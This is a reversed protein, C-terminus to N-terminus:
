WFRWWRKQDFSKPEHGRRYHKFRAPNGVYVAYPPVDRTVVSGAGVVAGEGITVGDILTAGSGVWAGKCVRIPGYILPNKTMEADGDHLGHGATVISSNSGILANDEFILGGEGPIYASINIVVGDGIQINALPFWEPYGLVLMTYGFFVVNNGVFIGRGGFSPGRRIQFAPHIRANSGLTDVGYFETVVAPIGIDDNFAGQM